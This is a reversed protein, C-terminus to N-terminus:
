MRYTQLNTAYQLFGKGHVCFKPVNGRCDDPNWTMCGGMSSIGVQQMGMAALTAQRNRLALERMRLRTANRMEDIDAQVEGGAAEGIQELLVEAASGIQQVTSPGELVHLLSLFQPIRALALAVTQM